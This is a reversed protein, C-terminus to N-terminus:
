WGTGDWGAATYWSLNKFYNNWNDYGDHPIYCGIGSYTEVDINVLPNLNVYDKYIITRDLQEEFTIPLNGDALERIFARFDYSSYDLPRRGYGYNNQFSNLKSLDFKSINGQYQKMISFSIDTLAQLEDLKVVAITAWHYSAENKYYDIFGRAIDIVNQRANNTALLDKTINFYPFGTSIVEAPSLILYDAAHRLEYAVEVQSMLCADMLIYNFHISTQSLVEALEPINIKSGNDDGLSRSKSHNVPLWGTAHSGFILGYSDAPCLQRMDNFVKLMVSPDVSDQEGYTQVIIRETVGGQDDVEYKFLTPVPFESSRPGDWYIVFTGPSAAKKLGDEVSAINNYIDGSIDNDAVLYMFVTRVTIPIQPSEEEDHCAVFLAALGM